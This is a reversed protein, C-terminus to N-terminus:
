AFAIHMEIGRKWIQFHAEIEYEESTDGAAVRLTDEPVSESESYRLIALIGPVSRM